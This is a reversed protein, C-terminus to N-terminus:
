AIIEETFGTDAIENLSMDLDKLTANKALVDCLAVAHRFEFGCGPFSVMLILPIKKHILTFTM